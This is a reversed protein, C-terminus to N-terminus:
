RTAEREAQTTERLRLGLPLALGGLACALTVLLGFEPHEGPVYLPSAMVAPWVILSLIGVSTFVKSAPVLRAELKSLWPSSVPELPTGCATCFHARAPVQQGCRRCVPHQVTPHMAISTARNTM